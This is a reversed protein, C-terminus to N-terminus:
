DPTPPSPHEQERRVGGRSLFYLDVKSAPKIMHSGQTWESPVVKDWVHVGAKKLSDPRTQILNLLTRFTDRNASGWSM